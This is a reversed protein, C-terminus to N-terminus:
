YETVPIKTIRGMKEQDNKKGKKKKKGATVNETVIEKKGREKGNCKLASTKFPPNAFQTNFSWRVVDGFDILLYSALGM